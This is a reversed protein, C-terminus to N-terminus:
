PKSVKGVWKSSAAARGRDHRGSVQGWQFDGWGKLFREESSHAIQWGRRLV